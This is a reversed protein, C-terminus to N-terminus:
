AAQYHLAREIMPVPIEYDQALCDLKDGAKMRDKLTRVTIGTGVITPRGAAILPDVVVPGNPGLPFWRLALQGADFAINAIETDVVGPLVIQGDASLAVM